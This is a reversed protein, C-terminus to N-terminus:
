HRQHSKVSDTPLPIKPCWVPRAASHCRFEAARDRSQKIRMSLWKMISIKARITYLASACGACRSSTLLCLDRIDMPLPIGHSLPLKLTIITAALAEARSRCPFRRYIGHVFVPAAMAACRARMTSIPSDGEIDPLISSQGNSNTADTRAVCPEPVERPARDEASLHPTAALHEEAQLPLRELSANCSGLSPHPSSPASSTRWTLLCGTLFRQPLFTISQASRRLFTGLNTM